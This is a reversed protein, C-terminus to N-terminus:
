RDRAPNISLPGLAAYAVEYEVVEELTAGAITTARDRM